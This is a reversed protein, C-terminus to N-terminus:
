FIECFILLLDNYKSENNNKMYMPYYTVKPPQIGEYETIIPNASSFFAVINLENYKKNTVINRMIYM